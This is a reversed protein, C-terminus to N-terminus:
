RATIRTTFYFSRRNTAPLNGPTDIRLTLQTLRARQDLPFVQLQALYNASALGNSFVNTTVNTLAKLAIPDGMMGPGDTSVATNDRRKVDYAIFYNTNTNLNVTQWHVTRVTNPGALTYANGPNRVDASDRIEDFIMQALIAAQTEESSERGTSSAVPFLALVGVM